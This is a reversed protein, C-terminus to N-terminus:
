AVTGWVMGTSDAPKFTASFTLAGNLDPTVEYSTCIVEGEFEPDTSVPATNNGFALTLTRATNGGVIGSIVTHSGTTATPDAFGTMTIQHDKRGALYFMNQGFGGVEVEAASIPFNIATVYQTIDRATSGSDDLNVTVFEGLRGSM